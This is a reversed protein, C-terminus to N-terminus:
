RSGHSKLCNPTTFCKGCFECQFPREGTHTRLHARLTGSQIFSAPCLKCKHPKEGNHSRVHRRLNNTRSFRKCCVNCEYPQEKTHTRAHVKLHWASRFGKGCVSCVFSNEVFDICLHVELMELRQQLVQLKMVFFVIASKLFFFFRPTMCHGYDSRRIGRRLNRIVYSQEAHRMNAKPPIATWSFDGRISNINGIDSVLHVRRIVPGSYNRIYAKQIPINETTFCFFQPTLFPLCKRLICGAEHSKLSGSQTFKKGCFDCQFPREGTHTKLHRRLAGITIFSAPCLQCRHPKEGTHTRVHTQLHSAQSFRKSCVNCDYPREKTHTRAHFSYPRELTHVKEHTKLNCRQKFHKGCIACDYPVTAKKTKPSKRKTRKSPQHGTAEADDTTETAEKKVASESQSRQTELLSEAIDMKTEAM